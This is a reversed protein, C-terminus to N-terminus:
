SLVVSTLNKEFASNVKKVPTGFKNGTIREAFLM